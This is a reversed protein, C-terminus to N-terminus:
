LLRIIYEVSGVLWGEVGIYGGRTSQLSYEYKIGSNYNNELFVEEEVLQQDWGKDM